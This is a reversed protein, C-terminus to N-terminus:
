RTYQYDRYFYDAYGHLLTTGGQKVVQIFPSLPVTPLNTTIAAGANAGDIVAQISTWAANTLIQLKHFSSAVAAIGTSQQTTASASKCFLTWNTISNGPWYEFYIGDTNSIGSATGNGGTAFGFRVILDDTTGNVLASLAWRFEAAFIGLGPFVTGTNGSNDNGLGILCADNLAAVNFSLVGYAKNTADAGYKSQSTFSGSGAIATVWPLKGGVGAGTSFQGDFEELEFVRASPLIIGGGGGGATNIIIAGPTTTTDFTVNTGALLRKLTGQAASILSVGGGTYADIITRVFIDWLPNGSSDRQYAKNPNTALAVDNVLSIQFSNAGTGQISQTTIVTGGSGNLGAQGQPIGINLLFNPATGSVSATAATGSTLTSVTGIAL